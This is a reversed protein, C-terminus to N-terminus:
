PDLNPWLEKKKFFNTKKTKPVGRGYLSLCHWIEYEEMRM